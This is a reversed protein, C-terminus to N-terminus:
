QSPPNQWSEKEQKSFTEVLEHGNSVTIIKANYRKSLHEPTLDDLFIDGESRLMSSPILMKDGLMDEPTIQNMIDTATLLGAVTVNGGFFKNEICHIRYNLDDFRQKAQKMLKSMMRNAITGTVIDIPASDVASCDALSSLFESEFLSTMGVGNEIQPFEDYYQPEPIEIGALIFLEDAAYILGTGFQERCYKHKRVVLDLADIAEQKGLPQLEHLNTRHATLGVPVVSISRTSPYLEILDDLTKELEASDNIGTCLVVQYNISIGAKALRYMFRLSDAGAPNQLMFSRLEGNTTHVSINIPSVNMEIIRDIDKDDLNTLTLY